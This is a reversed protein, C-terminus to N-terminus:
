TWTRREVEPNKDNIGEETYKIEETQQQRVLYLCTLYKEGYSSITLM